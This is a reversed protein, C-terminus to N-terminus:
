VRKYIIKSKWTHVCSAFVSSNNTVISKQIRYASTVCMFMWSDLHACWISLYDISQYFGDSLNKNEVSM